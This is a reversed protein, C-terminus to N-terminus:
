LTVGFVGMLETVDKERVDKAFKLPQEKLEYQKQNKTKTMRIQKPNRTEYKSNKRL